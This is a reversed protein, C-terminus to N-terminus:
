KEQYEPSPYKDLSVLAQLVPTSSIDCPRMIFLKTSATYSSTDCFLYTQEPTNPFGDNYTVLAAIMIAEKGNIIQDQVVGPLDVEVSILNGTPVVPITQYDTERWHRELVAALPIIKESPDDLRFRAEHAVIKTIGSPIHGSNIIPIDTRMHQFDDVPVGLILYARESIHLAEDATVAASKAANASRQSARAQKDLKGVAANVNGNILIATDAFQQAAAASRQAACAQIKAANAIATTDGSGHVMVNWQM